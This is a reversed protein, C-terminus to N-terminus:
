NEFMGFVFGKNLLIIKLILFFIVNEFITVNKLILNTPSTLTKGLFPSQPLLRVGASGSSISHNLPMNNLQYNNSQATSPSSITDHQTLLSACSKVACFSRRSHDLIFQRIPSSDRRHHSAIHNDVTINLDADVGRFSTM